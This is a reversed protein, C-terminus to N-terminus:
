STKEDDVALSSSPFSLLLVSKPPWFKLALKTGENELQMERIRQDRVKPNVVPLSAHYQTMASPLPTMREMALHVAEVVDGM